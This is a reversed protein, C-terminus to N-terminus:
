KSGAVKRNYDNVWEAAMRPRIRFRYQGVTVNTAPEVFMLDHGDLEARHGAELHFDLEEANLRFRRRADAYLPNIFKAPTMGKNIKPIIIGM